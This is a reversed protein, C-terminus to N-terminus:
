RRAAPQQCGRTRTGKTAQARRRGSLQYQLSTYLTTSLVVHLVLCRVHVEEERDGATGQELRYTDLASFLSTYLYYHFVSAHLEGFCPSIPNSKIALTEIRGWVVM